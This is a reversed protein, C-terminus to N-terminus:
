MAYPKDVDNLPIIKKDHKKYVDLYFEERDGNYTVEYYRNDPLTTTILYKWNQITKCKWVILLRFPTNEYGLTHYNYERVVRLAKADMYDMNELYNM